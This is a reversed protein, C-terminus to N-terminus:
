DKVIRVLTVDDYHDYGKNIIMNLKRKLASPNKVLYDDQAFFREISLEEAKANIKKFSFIGDTSVTFDRTIVEVSKKRNWYQEFYQHDTLNDLSYGIYDPQNNEDMNHITFTENNVYVVGDGFFKVKLKATETEYVFLIATSLTEEQTLGLSAIANNLNIFYAFALTKIDEVGAIRGTLADITKRLVNAFLKSAFYSEKGSSCGDFVAGTIIHGSHKYYLNDENCNPHLTGRRSVESIYLM